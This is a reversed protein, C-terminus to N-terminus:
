DLKMRGLASYLKGQNDRRKFIKTLKTSRKSDTVILQGDFTFEGRQAPKYNKFVSDRLPSDDGVTPLIKSIRFLAKKVPVNTQTEITEMDTSKVTTTALSQGVFADMLARNEDTLGQLHEKVFDETVQFTGRGLSEM